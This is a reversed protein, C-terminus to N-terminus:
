NGDGMLPLVQPKGDADLLTLDASRVGAGSPHFTVTITCANTPTVYGLSAPCTHTQTFDGAQPGAIAIAVPLDADGINSLHVVRGSSTTTVRQDGFMLDAPQLNIVAAPTVQQPFPAESRSALFGPDGVYAASVEHTGEHFVLTTFTAVTEGAVVGLPSSGV